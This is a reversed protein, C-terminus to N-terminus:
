RTAWASWSIRETGRPLTEETIEPAAVGPSSVRGVPFFLKVTTGQGAFSEVEVFGGQQTMLGYIVAMGLGTGMGPPKTTFFPEFVREKTDEDMGAGTDSVTVCMYQGLVADPHSLCYSADVDVPLVGLRLLGGEPMADRSNTALNMLIQEVAIPDARVRGVDDSIHVEIRISEPILRRLMGQLDTVIRAIDVSKISLEQQRGFGLLKRVLDRAKIGAGQLEELDTAALDSETPLSRSVLEANALIVTLLNNFDHAIGGALRGLAEMKQSQRLQSELKIREEETREREAIEAKLRENADSLEATREAVRRDLDDYARRLEGEAKKRESIDECTTIIAVPEDDKNIVIDSMLWVPFETGDKRRNTSERQWSSLVRLQDRTLPRRAGDPCFLAVDKGILEDMTYGHMGADASNTYVIKGQVDTITVGLQMTELAKRLQRMSAEAHARAQGEVELRARLEALVARPDARNAAWDAKRTREEAPNEPTPATPRAPDSM